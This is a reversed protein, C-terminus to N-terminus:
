GLRNAAQQLHTDWRDIGNKWFPNPENGPHSVSRLLVRGDPLRRIFGPAGSWQFALFGGAKKPRIPHPQAGHIVPEAYDVDAIAESRIVDGISVVRVSIKKQLQKTKGVPATRKLEDQLGLNGARVIREGRQRVERRLDDLLAM